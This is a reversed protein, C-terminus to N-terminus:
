VFLGLDYFYEQQFNKNLFGVNNISKIIAETANSQQASMKLEPFRKIVLIGLKSLLKIQNLSVDPLNILIESISELYSYVEEINAYDSFM